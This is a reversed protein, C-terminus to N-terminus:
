FYLWEPKFLLALGIGVMLLGGLLAVLRGWKSEIGVVQMTVMAVAFVVLDDLMFVLLYLLLYGYYAAMPLQQMTLMSAYAAPLAFSCVLEVLNVAVALAMIGLIAVGLRREGILNRIRAFVKQRKESSGVVCATQKKYWDWLHMVGVGLAVLGVVVRVWYVMGVILMTNLWAALFVFYVVGSAGLFALGLGWRRWPNHVTILLSILFLLVWMACPNFGDLFAIAATLIPLSLEATKVQGFGPLTIAEPIEPALFEQTKEPGRDLKAQLPDECGREVCAAVVAELEQEAAETAPWGKIYKDGVVTFPVGTIETGLIRGARELQRANERNISVELSFLRVEPYKAAIREMVPKQAACHPCTQSWFFYVATEAAMVKVTIFGAVGVALWLGVV